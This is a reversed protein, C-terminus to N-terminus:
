YFKNTKRSALVVQVGQNIAKQLVRKTPPSIEGFSNLLTGDLDIAVIKYM